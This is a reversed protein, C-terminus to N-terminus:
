VYKKNFKLVEKVKSGEYDNHGDCGSLDYDAYGYQDSDHCTDDWYYPMTYSVTKEGVFTCGYYGYHLIASEKYTFDVDKTNVVGYKIMNYFSSVYANNIENTLQGYGNLKEELNNYLCGDSTLNSMEVQTSININSLEGFSCRANVIQMDTGISTIHKSEVSAKFHNQSGPLLYNKAIDTRRLSTNEIFDM